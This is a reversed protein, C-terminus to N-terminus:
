RETLLTAVNRATLRYLSSRPTAVALTAGDAALARVRITGDPVAGTWLEQGSHTDRAIFAVGEREAAGLTNCSDGPGESDTLLVCLGNRGPILWVGDDSKRALSPMLGFRSPVHEVAKLYTRPLPEGPASRLLAFDDVAPRLAVTAPVDAKRSREGETLRLVIVVTLVLAM